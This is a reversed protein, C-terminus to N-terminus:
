KNLLVKKGLIDWVIIKAFKPAENEISSMGETKTQGTWILKETEVDYLNTELIYTKDITYYGTSRTTNYAYSYYNYYSYGYVPWVNSYYGGYGMTESVYRKTTRTDLVSIIMFADIKFKKITKKLHKELEEETFSMDALVDKRAALPFINFTSIATVGSSTFKEAVAEELVLRNPDTSTLALVALKYYKKPQHNEQTYSVQLKTSSCSLLIISIIIAGITKKM